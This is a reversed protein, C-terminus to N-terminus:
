NPDPIPLEHDLDSTILSLREKRGYLYPYTDRWYQAGLAKMSSEINIYDSVTIPFYRRTKRYAFIEAGFKIELSTHILLKQVAEILELQSGFPSVSEM